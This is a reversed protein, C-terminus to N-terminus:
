GRWFFFSSFGWSREGSWGGRGQYLRNTGEKVLMEREGRRGEERSVAMWLGRTSVLGRLPVRRKNRVCPSYVTGGGELKRM